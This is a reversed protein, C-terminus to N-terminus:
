GHHRGKESARKVARFISAYGTCRCFNGALAKKIETDAPAPNSSLLATSSMIMGPTCYGCQAAGEEIFAEQVATLRGEQALGEITTVERGDAEVALFLCSNVPMGNVLVTCAGCEGSGCGIKTGTLALDERLLDVLRRNAPISMECRIGNVILQIDHRTSKVNKKSRLNGRAVRFGRV